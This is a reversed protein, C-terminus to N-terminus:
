RSFKLSIDPPLGIKMNLGRFKYDSLKMGKQLADAKQLASVILNLLVKDQNESLLKEITEPDAEKEKSFSINVSPPISADVNLEKMNFGTVEILPALGLIDNVLTNVKEWGAEKLDSLFALSDKLKSDFSAVASTLGSKMEEIVM